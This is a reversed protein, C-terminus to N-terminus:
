RSRGGSKSGRRSSRERRPGHAPPANWVLLRSRLSEGCGLHLNRLGHSRIM